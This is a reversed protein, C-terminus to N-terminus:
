SGANPLLLCWLVAGLCSIPPGSSLTVLFVTIVVRPTPFLRTYCISHHWWYRLLYLQRGGTVWCQVKSPWYHDLVNTLKFVGFVTCYVYIGSSPAVQPLVVTHQNSVWFGVHRLSREDRSRGSWRWEMRDLELLVMAAPVGTEPYGYFWQWPIFNSVNGTLRLIRSGVAM